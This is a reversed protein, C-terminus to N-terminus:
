ESDMSALSFFSVQVANYGRPVPQRYLSAYDISTFINRVNSLIESVVPESSPDTPSTLM